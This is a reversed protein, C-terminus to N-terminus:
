FGFENDSINDLNDQEQEMRYIKEVEKKFDLFQKGRDGESNLLSDDNSTDLKFSMENANSFNLDEFLEEKEHRIVKSGFVKNLDEELNNLLYKEDENNSFEIHNNEEQMQPPELSIVEGQEIPPTNNENISDLNTEILPRSGKQMIEDPNYSIANDVSFNIDDFMKEPDFDEKKDISNSEEIENWLERFKTSDVEVNEFDNGFSVDEDLELSPINDSGINDLIREKELNMEDSLHEFVVETNPPQTLDEDFVNDNKVWIEFTDNNKDHRPYVQNYETFLQSARNKYDSSSFDDRYEYLLRKFGAKKLTSGILDPYGGHSEWWQFPLGYKLIYESACKSCYGRSNLVLLEGQELRKGCKCVSLSIDDDTMM